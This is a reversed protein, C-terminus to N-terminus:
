SKLNMAIDVGSYVTFHSTYWNFQNTDRYSKENVVHGYLMHVFCGKSNRLFILFRKEVALRYISRSLNDMTVEGAVERKGKM